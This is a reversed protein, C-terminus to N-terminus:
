WGTTVDLVTETDTGRLPYASYPNQRDPFNDYDPGGRPTHGWTDQTPTPRRYNNGGRVQRRQLESTESIQVCGVWDIQARNPRGLSMIM